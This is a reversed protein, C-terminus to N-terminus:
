QCPYLLFGTHYFCYDEDWRLALLEGLRLGSALDLKFASGLIDNEATELFKKQEDRSFVRIEKKVQRPLTTAESVNRIILQNKVAQELSRLIIVHIYRIYRPSLGGTGDM